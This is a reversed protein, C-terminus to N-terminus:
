PVQGAVPPYGAVLVLVYTGSQISGASVTISQQGGPIQAQLINPNDPDTTPCVIFANAPGTATGALKVTVEQKASDPTVTPGTGTISSIPASKNSKDVENSRPDLLVKPDVDGTFVDLWQTPIKFPAHPVPKKNDDVIGRVVLFPSAVDQAQLETGANQTLAALAHGTYSIFVVSMQVSM